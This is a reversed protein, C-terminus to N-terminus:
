TGAIGVFRASIAPEEGAFAILPAAVLRGQCWVGPLAAAIRRPEVPPLRATKSAAKLGAPGLRAVVLPAKADRPVTILFRHDWLATSGPAIAMSPNEKALAAEERTILVTATSRRALRCGGLTRGKPTAQHSILWALAAEIQEFRPPYTAGGIGEILRALARLAVERPATAFRGAAILAYGWPSIPAAEAILEAVSTEIAERARRLHTTAAAIRENTLGTENMPVLANRVQIRAFRDNANSPDDIWTQGQQTLTAMLRLHSIGLLPRALKLDRYEAVPFPAVPAMGSLGDLGSGRALRLLFTEAQDDQTHGTLLVGIGQGRMREGLLRYRADRAQAQLSQKPKPGRWLLTEHPIGRQQAWRAVSRAEDASEPRLAHDVTLALPPPLKRRKCWAAALLMLALSDAGGSVAVAFPPRVNLADLAADFEAAGVPNSAAAQKPRANARV